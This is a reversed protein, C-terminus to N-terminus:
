KALAEWLSLLQDLLATPVEMGVVMVLTAASRAPPVARGAPNAERGVPPVAMAAKGVATQASRGAPSGEMGVAMLAPRTVPIAASRAPQAMMAASNAVRGVAMPAPRMVPIAASQEPQAVTAAMTTLNAAVAQVVVPGTQIVMWVRNAAAVVASNRDKMARRQPRVMEVVEAAQYASTAEVEAWGMGASTLECTEVMAPRYRSEQCQTPRARQLRAQRLLQQLELLLKGRVQAM